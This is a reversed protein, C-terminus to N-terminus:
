GDGEAADPVPVQEVEASVVDVEHEVEPAPAPAIEPEVDGESAAEVEPQPRPVPRPAPRPGPTSPREGRAPREKSGGAKPGAQPRAPRPPKADAAIEVGFAAAVKRLAPGFRVVADRLEATVESPVGVPTVQAHVPAFAAAELVAIWRDPFADPTMSANTAETLRIALDPPFPVGAKPPRSSHRLARVVRGDDLAATIDALWTTHAEDQRRTLAERL